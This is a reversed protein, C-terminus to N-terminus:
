SVKQKTEEPEIGKLIWNLGIEEWNNYVAADIYREGPFIGTQKAIRIFQLRNLDSDTIVVSRQMGKNLYLQQGEKMYVQSDPPLTHLGRMDVFVYFENQINALAERSDELWQLMEDKQIIGSFTLKFGYDRKEIKYM